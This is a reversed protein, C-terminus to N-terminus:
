YTKKSKIEKGISEYMIPLSGENKFHPVLKPYCFDTTSFSFVAFEPSIDYVICKVNSNRYDCRYTM